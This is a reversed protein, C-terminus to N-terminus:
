YIEYTFTEEMMIIFFMGIMKESLLSIDIRDPWVWQM